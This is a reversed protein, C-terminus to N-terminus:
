FCIPPFDSDGVPAVCYSNGVILNSCGTDVGPNLFLFDFLSLKYRISVLGCDGEGEMLEYYLGCNTTTNTAIDTPVPAAETPTTPPVSIAPPIYKGGPNSMCIQRGVFGVINNCYADIALNWSLLQAITVDDSDDDIYDEVISQCTDDEQVTYVDCKDAQPICLTGSTPFNHCWAYLNNRRILNEVSVSQSLAIGHCTDGTQITYM